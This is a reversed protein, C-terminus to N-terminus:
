IHILSLTQYPHHLTELGRLGRKAKAKRSPESGWPRAEVIELKKGFDEIAFNRTSIPIPKWPLLTGIQSPSPPTRNIVMTMTTLDFGNGWPNNMLGRTQVAGAANRTLLQGSGRVIRRNSVHTTGPQQHGALLPGRDRICM